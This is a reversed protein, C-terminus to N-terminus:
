VGGPHVRPSFYSVIGFLAHEANCRDCLVAGTTCGQGMVRVIITENDVKEPMTIVNNPTIRTRLNAHEVTHIHTTM